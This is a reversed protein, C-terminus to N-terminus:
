KELLLDEILKDRNEIKIDNRIISHIDEVNNINSSNYQEFYRHFVRRLINNCKIHLTSLTIVDGKDYHEYFYLDTIEGDENQKILNELYTAHKDTEM